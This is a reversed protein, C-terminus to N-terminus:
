ADPLEASLRQISCSPVRCAVGNTAILKNATNGMHQHKHTLFLCFFFFFFFFISLPIKNRYVDQIDDFLENM